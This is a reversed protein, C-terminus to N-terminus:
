EDELESIYDILDNVEIEANVVRDIAFDAYPKNQELERRKLYLLDAIFDFVDELQSPAIRYVKMLDNLKTKTM